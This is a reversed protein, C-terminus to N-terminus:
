KGQPKVVDRMAGDRVSHVANQNHYNETQAVNETAIVHVIQM